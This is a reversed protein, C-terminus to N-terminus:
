LHVRKDSLDNRRVLIAMAYEKKTLAPRPQDGAGKSHAQHM